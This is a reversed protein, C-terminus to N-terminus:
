NSSRESNHLKRIKHLYLTLHYIGSKSFAVYYLENFRNKSYQNDNVNLLRLPWGEQSIM